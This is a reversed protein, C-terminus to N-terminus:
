QVQTTEVQLDDVYITSPVGYSGSLGGCYHAFGSAVYAMANNQKWPTLAAIREPNIGITHVNEIKRYVENDLEDSIWIEIYGGTANTAWDRVNRYTHTKVKFWRGIPVSENGPLELYITRPRPFDAVGDDDNDVDALGTIDFVLRDNYKDWVVAIRWSFEQYPQPIGATWMRETVMAHITRWLPEGTDPDIWPMDSPFYFWEEQWIHETTLPDWDHMLQIRRTGDSTPDVLELKASRTGSHVITTEPWFRYADPHVDM